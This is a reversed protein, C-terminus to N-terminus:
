AGPNITSLNVIRFRIEARFSLNTGYTSSDYTAKILVYRMYDSSIPLALDDGTLIIYSGTLAVNERGNVVTSQDNGYLTWSAETPTVEAGDADKFVIPLVYTSGEVADVTMRIIGATM